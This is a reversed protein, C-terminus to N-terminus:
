FSFNVLDIVPAAKKVGSDAASSSGSSSSSSSQPEVSSNLMFSLDPLAAVLEEAIQQAKTPKMMSVSPTLAATTVM